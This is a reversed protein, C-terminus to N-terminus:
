SLKPGLSVFSSTMIRQNRIYSVENLEKEATVSGLIRLAYKLPDFRPDSLTGNPDVERMTREVEYWDVEAQGQNDPRRSKFQISRKRDM